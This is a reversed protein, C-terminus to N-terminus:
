AAVQAQILVGYFQCPGPCWSRGLVTSPPRVQGGCTQCVWGVESGDDSKPFTADAHALMALHVEPRFHPAMNGCQRFGFRRLMIALKGV